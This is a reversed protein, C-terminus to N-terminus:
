NLKVIKYVGIQECVIAVQFNAWSQMRAMADDADQAHLTAVVKVGCRTANAVIEFDNDALEDCFIYDPSLCRTAIQFGKSKSTWKLLDCNSLVGQIALEGREDVVVVNATKSLQLAIDRLLTTKGSGPRGIVIANAGGIAELIQASACRIHHPVRICISTYEQFFGGDGLVGGVGFRSGDALTFYGDSLMREYAYISNNCAINVIQNCSVDLDKAHELRSTLANTACYQWGNCTNVRVPSNDRLRIEKVVVSGLCSTVWSPLCDYFKM